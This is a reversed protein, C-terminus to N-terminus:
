SKQDEEEKKEEKEEEKEEKAEEKKEEKEEEKEEKAEEILEKEEEKEEKVLDEWNETEDGGEKIEEESSSSHEELLKWPNEVPVSLKPATVIKKKAGQVVPKFSPDIEEEKRPLAPTSESPPRRSPLIYTSGSAPALTLHGNSDVVNTNSDIYPKIKYPGTALQDKANFLTAASDFIVLVNEPDVWQLTYKGQFDRLFDEM